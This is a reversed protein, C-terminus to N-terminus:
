DPFNHAADVATRIRQHTIGEGQITCDAGLMFGKRGAKRVIGEVEAKIDGDSGNLINGKNNMGGLVPKKFLERGQEPAIGTDKVSWNVIAAPYDAFWALNTKFQYDPEGCIHLINRGGQQEAAKLVAM